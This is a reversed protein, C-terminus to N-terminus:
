YIAPSKYVGIGTEYFLEAAGSKVVVLYVKTAPGINKPAMEVKLFITLIIQQYNM